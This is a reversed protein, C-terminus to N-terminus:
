GFVRLGKLMDAAGSAHGDVAGIDEIEVARITDIENLAQEQLQREEPDRGPLSSFLEDIQSDHWAAIAGSGASKPLPLPVPVMFNQLKEHVEYRLKRGKSAKTDVVKKSKRQQQRRQQIAYWDENDDGINRSDIVDRLLQQYFETDDFTELDDEADDDDNLNEGSGGGDVLRLHGYSARRTRMRALLRADDTRLLEDVQVPVSKIDDQTNRHRSFTSSRSSAARLAAPAVAAIKASWKALTRTLHAHHAHELLSTYACEEPVETSYDRVERVDNRDILTRRKRSRTPTAVNQRSMLGERLLSLTDSLALAEDLLAHQAALCVPDTTFSAFESPL